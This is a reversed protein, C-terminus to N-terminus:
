DLMLPSEGKPALPAPPMNVLVAGIVFYFTAYSSFFLQTALSSSSELFTIHLLNFYFVLGTLIFILIPMYSKLTETLNKFSFTNYKMTFLKQNLPM